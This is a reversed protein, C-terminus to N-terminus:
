LNAIHKCFPTRSACASDSESTVFLTLNLLRLFSPFCRFSTKWKTKSFCECVHVCARVCVWVDMWVCVCVCVVEKRVSAM